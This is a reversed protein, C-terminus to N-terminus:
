EYQAMRELEACVDAICGSIVLHGACVLEISGDFRHVVKLRTSSKLKNNKPESQISQLNTLVPSAKKPLAAENLPFLDKGIDLLYIAESTSVPLACQQTSNKYRYLPIKEQLAIESTLDAKVLVPQMECGTIVKKISDEILSSKKTTEQQQQDAEICNTTNTTFNLCGIRTSKKDFNNELSTNKAQFFLKIVPGISSKLSANVAQLVNTKTATPSLNLINM